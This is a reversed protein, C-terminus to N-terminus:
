KAPFLSEYRDLRAKYDPNDAPLVGALTSLGAEFQVRAEQERGQDALLEALETQFFAARLSGAGENRQLLEIAKSFYAEREEATLTSEPLQALRGYTDAVHSHEPGVATGIALATRYSAEAEEFRGQFYHNEGIGNHVIVAQISESGFATEIRGLAETYTAAAEEHKGQLDQIAAVGIMIIGINPHEAGLSRSFIDISEAKLRESMAYDGLEQYVFSLNAVSYGVETHYPGFWDRKIELAEEHLETAEALRGTLQYGAALNSLARAYLGRAQTQSLLEIAEEFSQIAETQLSLANQVYGLNNLAQGLEFRREDPDSRLLDLARQQVAMAEDLKGINSLTVAHMSLMWAVDVADEGWADAYISIAEDQLEAADAYNGYILQLMGMAELSDGIAIHRPPYAARRVELGEEILPRADDPLGLGMYVRGIATMLNAQIRPQDELEERIRGAGMDLVERATIEAGSESRVPTFAWPDSVQFLDVLFETTASATDREEVAVREAEVARMFGITAAVAGAVIAVIAISAATVMLRNRRVFRSLVYGASPHRALVPEHKLFRRCDMALANATEYRRARDKEISQMVIWDLDGKLKRRLTNIDTRRSRAVEDQTDGLETIRTSPKAPDKERLAFRMAEDGIKALDLPVTGVLLEYLVVGLSYIDSRTDVDLGSTEAQEPSMYQPTGVIQGLRTFLTKDTMTPSAAKAIGFDIIKVQPKGDVDGVLLNSPKLDRPILGKHHAHQVASCVDVFLAVREDTDLRHQDCYETIPIGHVREMVFYPHGSETIGGDFIKAIGPHDLVALAQRESEFRAVVQRTDMGPKIVKLAVQRKVPEEQDALYVIAMGGEGLVDRIRYHGIQKPIDGLDAGPGANRGANKSDNNETM